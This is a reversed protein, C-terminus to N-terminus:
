RAPPTTGDERWMSGGYVTGHGLLRKGFAYFRFFAMVLRREWGRASGCVWKDDQVGGDRFYVVGVVPAEVQEGRRRRRGLLVVDQAEGDAARTGPVSGYNFPSPLPSVYDLRGAADRKVFAGRPVEVILTVTEPIGHAFAACLAKKHNALCV